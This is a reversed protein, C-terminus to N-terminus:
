IRCERNESEFRNIDTLDRDLNQTHLALNDEFGKRKDSLASLEGELQAVAINLEQREQDKAAIAEHKFKIDEQCRTIQGGIGQLNTSLEAEQVKM